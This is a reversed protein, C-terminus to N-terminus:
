REAGMSPEGPLEMEIDSGPFERCPHLYGFKVDAQRLGASRPGDKVKGSILRSRCWGCSGSRCLSPAKMGAREMAVLLTEDSRAPITKVQSDFKVKLKYEESSEQGGGQNQAFDERRIQKARLNLGQLEKELFDQMAPPGCIFFSCKELEQEPLFAQLKERMLDASIFGQAGQWDATPESCVPIYSFRQGNDEVMTQFDKQFILGEANLAGHFLLVNQEQQHKLLDPIMSRFPTIGSGGGLCILTKSDRLPQHYFDGVPGSSCIQSGEKWTDYIHQSAFGDQTKKITLHYLGQTSSLDPPSSISFPRRVTSGEIDMAISLYQGARFFAPKGEQSDRELVYSRCDPSEQVVKTIRLNQEHPHLQRALQNMKGTPLPKAPAQKFIKNRTKTHKLFSLLSFGRAKVKHKM